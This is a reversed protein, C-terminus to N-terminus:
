AFDGVIRGHGVIHPTAHRIFTRYTTWVPLQLRSNLALVTFAYHHTTNKPPKPGRYHHWGYAVAQNAELDPVHFGGPIDGPIWTQTPLNWVLWHTMTGFLPHSEDRLVVALSRTTQPLDEIHFSPSIDEGRGTFRVMFRGHDDIAESSVRLAAPDESGAGSSSDNPETVTNM